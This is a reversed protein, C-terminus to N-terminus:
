IVPTFDKLVDYPVEKMLLPTVPFPFGIILLTYGDPPAKAVMDTGITTNGGPKNEVVVPQNWATTLHAAITRGLTDNFGGPTFPVVIKIPKAPYSQAYAPIVGLTMALVTMGAAATMGAFAPIWGSLLRRFMDRGKLLRIRNSFIRM